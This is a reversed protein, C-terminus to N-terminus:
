SPASAAQATSTVGGSRAKQFARQAKDSANMLQKRTSNRVIEENIDIAYLLDQLGVGDFGYRGHTAKRRKCRSMAAMAVDIPPILSEDIDLARVGAIMLVLVIAEFDSDDATGDKLREVAARIRNFDKLTEEEEIPRCDYLLAIPKLLHDVADQACRFKRVMKSPQKKAAKASARRMARNM